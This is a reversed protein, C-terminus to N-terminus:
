RATLGYPEVFEPLRLTMMEMLEPTTGLHVFTAGTLLMAGLPFGSLAEWTEKRARSLPHDEPLAPGCGALYTDLGGPPSPPPHCLDALKNVPPSAGKHGQLGVHRAKQDLYPLLPSLTSQRLRM